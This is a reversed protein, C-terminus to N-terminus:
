NVTLLFASLGGEFHIATAKIIDIAPLENIEESEIDAFTCDTLWDRMQKVEDATYEREKYQTAKDM